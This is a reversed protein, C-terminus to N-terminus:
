NLLSPAFSNSIIVGSVICSSNNYMDSISKNGSAVFLTKYHKEQTGHIRIGKSTQPVRNQNLSWM